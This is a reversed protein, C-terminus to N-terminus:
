RASTCGDHNKATGASRPSAGCRAGLGSREGISFAPASGVGSATRVRVDARPEAEVAGFQWM